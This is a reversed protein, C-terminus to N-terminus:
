EGNPKDNIPNELDIGYKEEFTPKSGVLNNKSASLGKIIDQSNKL